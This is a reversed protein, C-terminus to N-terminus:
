QEKNRFFSPNMPFNVGDSIRDPEIPLPWKWNYEGM